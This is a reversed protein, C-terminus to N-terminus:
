RARKVVEYLWYPEWESSATIDSLAGDSPRFTVGRLRRKVYVVIRINDEITWRRGTGGGVVCVDTNKINFRGQKFLNLVGEAWEPHNEDMYRAAIEVAKLM